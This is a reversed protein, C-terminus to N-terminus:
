SHLYSPFFLAGGMLSQFHLRILIGTHSWAQEEGEDGEEAEGFVSDPSQILRTM